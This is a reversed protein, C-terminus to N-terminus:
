VQIDLQIVRELYQSLMTQLQQVRAANMLSQNNSSVALRIKGNEEGRFVSNQALQRVIGTLPLCKVVQEWNASSLVTVAKPPEAEVPKEQPMASKQNSVVAREIPAEPLNESVQVPSFALLRILVMEFASRQEMAINLDANGQLCIQYFLQIDEAPITNAIQQLVQDEETVRRTPVIQAVAVRQWFQVLESLVERYDLGQQAVDAARQLLDSGNKAIVAQALKFVVERDVTGLMQNVHERDVHGGSHAIAQDMLSLADRMSGRAARAIIQTASTEFPIGEQELVYNLHESIQIEPIARLNFQLCRSLVTVPLKQPDTTALIFKVHPPPEELTKLLANFSHNSLMHVEDILYVKYRGQTPAYQVNDMLERTDEVKTRSAADIELLDVFRGQDVEQCVSCVGCPQSGLGKECNLSKAFIRGLTTKGVGRTGTFLYAHHLRNNDLANILAQLVHEQGVVQSFTRPRWKRALVQYSM